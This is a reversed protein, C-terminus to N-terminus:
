FIYLYMQWLKTRYGTIRIKPNVPCQGQRGGPMCNALCGPPLLTVPHRAPASNTELQKQRFYVYVKIKVRSQKIYSYKQGNEAMGYTLENIYRYKNNLVTGKFKGQQIYFYYENLPETANNSDNVM